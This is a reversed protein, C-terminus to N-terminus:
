GFLDLTPLSKQMAIVDQHKDWAAESFTVLRRDVTSCVRTAWQLSTFSNGLRPSYIFPVFSYGRDRFDSVIRDTKEPSAYVLRKNVLNSIARRGHTTFVALGGPNLWQMFRSILSECDDENLHTLVSGSWILDYSHPAVLEEINESSRWPHAGFTTHCFELADDRVDCVGLSATPFAAQLWRLVRGSGSGFDLISNPPPANALTLAALVCRLASEGVQEYHSRNKSFMHDDDKVTWNIRSRATEIVSFDLPALRSM